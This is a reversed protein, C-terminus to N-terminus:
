QAKEKDLGLDQRPDVPAGQIQLGTGFRELGARGLSRRKGARNLHGAGSRLRLRPSDAGGCGRHL